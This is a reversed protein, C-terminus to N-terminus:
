RAGASMAEVNWVCACKPAYSAFPFVILCKLHSASSMVAFVQTLQYEIQNYTGMNQAIEMMSNWYWCSAMHKQKPAAWSPCKGEFNSFHKCSSFHSCNRHVSQQKDFNASSYLTSESDMHSGVKFTFNKGLNRVELILIMIYRLSGFSIDVIGNKGWKNIKKAKGYTACSTAYIIISGLLFKPLEWLFSLNVYFAMSTLFWCHFLSIINVCSLYINTPFCSFYCIACMVLPCSVQRIHNLQIFKYKIVGISHVRSVTVSCPWWM